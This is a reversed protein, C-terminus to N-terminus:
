PTGAPPLFREFAAVNSVGFARLDIVLGTGLDELTIAGDTRRAVQFPTAPDLDRSRRDRGISRLVGRIFGEEGPPLTELLAGTRHDWVEVGQDSIGTPQIAVFRLDRTEVASALPLPAPDLGLLRFAAIALIILTLLTGVAILVGRPFPRDTFEGSM